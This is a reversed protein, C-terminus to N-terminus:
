FATRLGFNLGRPIPFNGYDVGVAGSGGVAATNGNVIPDLGTYNTFLLLDTGTVYVSAGGFREPLTYSVTVDRLRAWNIDKEIFLEESMGSYFGPTLAPVVVITNPTPNDTNELGDRLVGPVVRPQERDLTMPSLGRTTLYHETANLVDGGRRFDWLMSLRFNGFSVNNSLGLTWDPQRDYGADIFTTSRVPLGSNPDILLQGAKNRLYFTGTMSMTSTGPMTGNRINGYLWTDSNYSEPLGFPLSLVKARSRDFNAVVEWTLDDRIVPMGRLTVELGEARTTAGNLNFLVFGTAYSGRINNVIQDKTDKRYVTADVGLRDRFFGLETGFEYSHAFEPKLNRNPGWFDYGYGGFSSTKNVLSPRYAYPSADRGVEAYAARLKGTMYQGVAPFADSFVFSTSVSPYFFSNREVPITSTWDNRGTLTLFLYNRYDLTAQGFLSMLRRQAITTKGTKVFANNISVFDPELFDRGWLADVTSKDDRVSGGALGTIGFRDLFGYRNVSVLGQATLNRTIDDAVDLLGNNTFGYHSSPHRLIESQNSYTDSGLNVRLNGWDFPTFRLGLNALMRNNITSVHNRNVTFYPNDIESASDLQSIFRRQGSPTLWEAANDTSPWIMLGLLPGPTAGSGKFTQDNDSHSYQMSLDVNLWDTAQAQGAGMLNIRGYDTNPVVGNQRLLGGSVRYNVRNDSAAGSFALDHRQTFATQFFEKTNDYFRTGPAYPEGWYSFSFDDPNTPGYVRQIEPQDRVSEVRFSNSYEFGIDATGRKTTILVAGNAADIGYLAAAEPGKLITISEIDRPNIDAGRNTFDVMRNEFSVSSGGFSSALVSTHMTKNDMPLGDVIFLPQNSSSISSVGRIVIQSSAGPVGSTSNVQVGAVRGQLANLFNDRQSEAIASGLVTQQSTGLSRKAATEGFATTVVAELESASEGLTLTVTVTQGAVVTVQETGPSYGIRRATVAHSGPAVGPIVFEGSSNSTARIITGDIMVQANELPRGGDSGLVRGRVTGTAQAQLASATLLQLALVAAAGGLAWPSAWRM